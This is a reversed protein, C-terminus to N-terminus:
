KKNDKLMSLAYELADIQLQVNKFPERKMNFVLEELVRIMTQKCCENM